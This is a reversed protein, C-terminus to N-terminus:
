GSGFTLAAIAQAGGVKLFGDAGAIYAAAITIPAPRPSAVWASKVGAVKATIVTMLVSSPLPFRGRCCWNILNILLYILFGPAYCGAREVCSVLQGARGGDVGTVM